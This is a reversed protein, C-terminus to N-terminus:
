GLSRCAGTAEPWASLGLVVEDGIVPKWVGSFRTSSLWPQHDRSGVASFIAAALQPGPHSAPIVPAEYSFLRGAMLWGEPELVDRGSCFTRGGTTVDPINCGPWVKSCFVVYLLLM